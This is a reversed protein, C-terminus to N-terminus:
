KTEPPNYNVQVPGNNIKEWVTPENKYVLAMWHYHAPSQLGHSSSHWTGRHLVFVYGPRLIVPIVDEAGPSKESAPAVCFVIPKDTPIQAEQTHLHREMEQATFPTAGGLTYGLSGLTDLLSISTDTDEWGDGFSHNTNGTSKGAGTLNYLIGYKSYDISEIEVASKITVKDNM